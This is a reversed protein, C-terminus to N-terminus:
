NTRDSTTVVPPFRRAYEDRIMKCLWKTRDTNDQAVMYTLMSLVEPPPVVFIGKPKPKKPSKAM